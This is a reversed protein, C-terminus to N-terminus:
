EGNGSAALKNWARKSKKINRGLRRNFRKKTGRDLQLYLQGDIIDYQLPDVKSKMGFVMGYACYGNYAPMFSTPDSKFDTLNKESNFLLTHEQYDLSHLTSGKMPGTARFYSVVDYGEIFYPSDSGTQEKSLAASSFFVIFLYISLFAKSRKEVGEHCQSVMEM